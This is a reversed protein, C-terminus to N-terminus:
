ALCSALEEPYYRAVSEAFEALGSGHGCLSSLALAAVLDDWRRRTLPVHSASSAPASPAFGDMLRRTGVRCPTCTGCSEFAGFEFVHHSLDRISTRDDFAVVGGHGVSAGIARLEDFGFTTDLLHPPVIGALPAGILVGKLRGEALGGGLDEVIHRIPVGFEVEYLGPYRFLSNLSVVKTGRSTVTGLARYREAGEKVIWVISALTEINHVLTPRGFLGHAAPYPPRVRVEGRGGEIANLMATEEGCVYSGRGAVVEIDFADTGAGVPQGLVGARRAAAIATEVRSIATPYEDRVYVVGKGAGVAYAAIILGEIVVQPDEELILRDIYAGPDGEDGNAVVYKANPQGDTAVARWKTGAPFGAGGRGRLDSEVVAEIVQAPTQSLARQMAQYGGARQYANIDAHDGAALRPLVVSERCAIQVRPRSLGRSSAPAEYCCGLCYTQPTQAVARNWRAPNLHRAVFCALGRCEDLRPIASTRHYFSDIHPASNV